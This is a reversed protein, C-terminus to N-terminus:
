KAYKSVDVGILKATEENVVTSYENLVQVPMDAIKKNNILVDIVMDGTQHGLNTYNVGVTALGGDHVMSDASVYVPTKADIAIDSLVSMATAVTNDIPSFIADVKKGVLSQAAQAVDGTANVTAEEFTYGNKELYAKTDTIVSVSNPEGPNYILGI